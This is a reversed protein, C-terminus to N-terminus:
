SHAKPASCWFQRGYLCRNISMQAAFESAVKETSYKYQYLKFLNPCNPQSALQRAAPYGINIERKTLPSKQAKRKAVAGTAALATSVSFSATPAGLLQSVQMGSTPWRAPIKALCPKCSSM